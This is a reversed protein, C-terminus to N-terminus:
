YKDSRCNQQKRIFHISYIKFFNANLFIIILTLFETQTKFSILKNVKFNMECYYSGTLQIYNEDPLDNRTSDLLICEKTEEIFNVSQCQAERLCLHSCKRRSHAENSGLVLGVSSLSYNPSCSADVLRRQKGCLPDQTNVYEFLGVIIHILLTFKWVQEVGVM